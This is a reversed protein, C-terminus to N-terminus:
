LLHLDQRRGPLQGQDPLLHQESREALRRRHGPAMIDPKAAFDIASPGRSSYPAVIDDRRNKTGEHSSAGVTIVWPANGPATIAGYQPQGAKNSGFNGAATVVVIGADVARKAALTLPDQNYSTTVAAGVSVNLM